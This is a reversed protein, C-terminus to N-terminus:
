RGRGLLWLSGIAPTRHKEPKGDNDADYSFSLMQFAENYLNRYMTARETQYGERQVSMDEFILALTLYLHPMRLASPSLILYPRRGKNILRQNIEIWAEDLFAQYDSLSTISDEANPNLASARQFLDSDTVVPHLKTRVLAAENQFTYTATDPMVLSWKVLWGEGLSEDDLASAGISYEAISGSVTVSAASIVETGSANMLTFTGSSPAAIKGDVYVPCKVTEARGREILEPLFFRASYKTDTNAM